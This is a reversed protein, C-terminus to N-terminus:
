TNGKRREEIAGGGKRMGGGGDKGGVRCCGSCGRGNGAGSQEVRRMM